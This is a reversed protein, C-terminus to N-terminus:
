NAANADREVTLILQFESKNLTLVVDTSDDRASWLVMRKDSGLLSANGGHKTARSGLLAEVRSTIADEIDPVIPTLAEFAMVNFMCTTATGSPLQTRVFSLEAFADGPFKVEDSYFLMAKDDTITGFGTIDGSASAAIIGEPDAAIESCRAAFADLLEDSTLNQAFASSSASGIAVASFVAPWRM